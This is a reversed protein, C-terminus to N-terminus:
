KSFKFMAMPSLRGPPSGQGEERLQPSKSRLLILEEAEEVRNPGRKNAPNLTFIHQEAMPVDRTQQGLAVLQTGYLINLEVTVYSLETSKKWLLNLSYDLFDFIFESL